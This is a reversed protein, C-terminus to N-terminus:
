IYTFYKTYSQFHKFDYYKNSNMIVITIDVHITHM